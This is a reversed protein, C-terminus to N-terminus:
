RRGRVGGDGNMFEFPTPDSRIQHLAILSTTTASNNTRDGLELLKHKEAVVQLRYDKLTIKKTNIYAAAHVIPLPLYSLERLLLEMENKQIELVQLAVVNLGALIDATNSNTTTFVISGLESHPLNDILKALQPTPLGASAGGRDDIGDYVLLWQRASKRSLHLKVLLAVDVQDKDWGPINLKRAINVHAQHFGDIDSADIWFVCCSKYVERTKYALELALQSKGVGGVATIAILTTQNQGFLMGEIETIQPERGVFQWNRSYPISFSTTNGPELEENLRNWAKEQGEGYSTLISVNLIGLLCYANDEPETTKRAKGWAM